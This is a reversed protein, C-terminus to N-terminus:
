FKMKFLIKKNFVRHFFGQGFHDSFKLGSQLNKLTLNEAFLATRIDTMLYEGFNIESFDKERFNGGFYVRCYDSADVLINREVNFEGDSALIKIIKGM